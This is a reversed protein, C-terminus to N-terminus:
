GEVTREVWPPAPGPSLSPSAPLQTFVQERGARLYIEGNTLGLTINVPQGGSVRSNKIYIEQEAGGTQRWRAVPRGSVLELVIYDMSVSGGISLLLGERDLTTLQFDIQLSEGAEISFLESKMQAFSSGDLSLGFTPPREPREPLHCKELSEAEYIYSVIHGSGQGSFDVESQGFQTCDQVAERCLNKTGFHHICGQFGTPHLVGSQHHGGLYVPQRSMFANDLDSYPSSKTYEEDVTLTINHLSKLLRLSHVEGDSVERETVKLKTKGVNVTTYGDEVAIALFNTETDDRTGQWLLLGDRAHTSFTLSIEIVHLSDHNVIKSKLEVYGQESVLRLEPRRIEEELQSQCLFYKEERCDRM